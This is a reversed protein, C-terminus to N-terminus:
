PGHDSSSVLRGPHALRQRRGGVRKPARMAPDHAAQTRLMAGVCRRVAALVAEGETVKGAGPQNAGNPDDAGTAHGEGRGCSCTQELAAVAAAAAEATLMCGAAPEVMLVGSAGPEDAHGEPLPLPRDSGPNGDAGSAGPPSSPSTLQVLKTRPPLLPLTKVVMERAMKWTSDIVVCAYAAGRLAEAGRPMEAAAKAVTMKEAATRSTAVGATITAGGEGTDVRVGRPPFTWTTDGLADGDSVRCSLLDCTDAAVNVATVDAAHPAPYMLYVPSERPLAQELLTLLPTSPGRAVDVACRRICRPLIWGTGLARRSESPHEIM